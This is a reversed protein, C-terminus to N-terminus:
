PKLLLFLAPLQEIIDGASGAGCGPDVVGDVQAGGGDSAVDALAVASAAEDCEVSSLPSVSARRDSPKNFLRM